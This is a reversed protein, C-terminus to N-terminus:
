TKEMTGREVNSIINHDFSKYFFRQTFAKRESGYSLVSRRRILIIKSNKLFPHLNLFTLHIGLFWPFVLVNIISLEKNSIRNHDHRRLVYRQTDLHHMTWYIWISAVSNLVLTNDFKFLKQRIGDTDIWYNVFTPVNNLRAGM